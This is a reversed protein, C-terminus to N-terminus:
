DLRKTFPKIKKSLKIYSSGTLPNYKSTYEVLVKEVINKFTQYLQLISQNLYIM